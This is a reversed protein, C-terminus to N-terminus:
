FPEDSAEYAAKLARAKAPTPLVDKVAVWVRDNGDKDTYPDVGIVIVCDEDLLDDTDVIEEVAAIEGTIAESWNKFKCEAHDVFSTSTRGQVTQGNFADDEDLIRFKWWLQEYEEGDRNKRKKLEIASCRAVFKAGDEFDPREEAEEKKMKLGM